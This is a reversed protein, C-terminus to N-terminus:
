QVSHKTHGCKASADRRSQLEIFGIRLVLMVVLCKGFSFSVVCYIDDFLLTLLARLKGFFGFWFLFIIVCCM